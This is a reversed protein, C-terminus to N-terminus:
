ICGILFTSHESLHCHKGIAYATSNLLDSMEAVRKAADTGHTGLDYVQFPSAASNSHSKTSGALVKLGVGMKPMLQQVNSPGFSM